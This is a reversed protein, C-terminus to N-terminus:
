PREFPSKGRRFHETGLNHPFYNREIDDSRVRLNLLQDIEEKILARPLKLKYQDDSLTIHFESEGFRHRFFGM